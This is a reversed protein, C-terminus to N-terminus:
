SKKNEAVAKQLIVCRAIGSLDNVIKHLTLGHAIFIDAIKQAQGQGAELLIYGNDKLLEPAVEAIRLYSDYGSEGGDLAFRPDYNKVEPDLTEIDESQIYPPNSVIMDFRDKFANTFDSTFWDAKMFQLRSGIELNIANKRAVALARESIDVAVGCANIKEKLLSEIICGSGCGLDLINAASMNQLIELASELLIETDPRPSLVDENVKFDYKYFERHGLIKDLPKHQLRQKLLAETKSIIEASVEIESYIESPSCKLVEALLLRAEARPNEIKEAALRQVISFFYDAM